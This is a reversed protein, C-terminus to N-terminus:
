NHRLELRVSETGATVSKVVPMRGRVRAKRRSVLTVAVPPLGAFRFGGRADTQVHAIPPFSRYVWGVIGAQLQRPNIKLQPSLQVRQDSMPQGHRDLLRGTIERARPLRWHRQRTGASVVVTQFFPLHGTPHVVMVYRGAQLGDFRVRGAGDPRATLTVPSNQTRYRLRRDLITSGDDPMRALHVPSRVPQGRGDYVRLALVGRPDIRLDGRDGTSKPTGRWAWTFRGDTEVFLSLGTCDARHVVAVRGDRDSRYVRGLVLRRARVLETPVAAAVIRVGALPRGDADLLRFRSRHGAVVSKTRPGGATFNHFMAHTERAMVQVLGLDYETRHLSFAGTKDTHTRRRPEHHDFVMSGAEPAGRSDLIRGAIADPGPGVEFDNDVKDHVAHKILWGDGMALIQVWTGRPVRFRYRGDADTRTELRVGFRHSDSSPIHVQVPHAAIPSRDAKHRLVGHVIRTEHVKLTVFGGVVIPPTVLSAREGYRAVLAFRRGVPLRFSFQGRADTRTSPYARTELPMYHTLTPPLGPWLDHILFVEAGALRRGTHRDVVKGGTAVLTRIPSQGALPCLLQGVTLIAAVHLLGHNSM